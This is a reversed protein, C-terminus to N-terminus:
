LRPGGQKREPKQAAPTQKSDASKKDEGVAKKGEIKPTSGAEEKVQERSAEKLEPKPAEQVLNERRNFNLVKESIAPMLEEVWKPMEKQPVAATVKGNEIQILSKLEGRGGGGDYILLKDILPHNKDANGANLYYNHAVNAPDVHHGGTGVRQAVRELSVEVSKLGIYQMEVKYGANKFDVLPMWQGKDTFHGEYIFPAGKGIAGKYADSFLNNVYVSAEAKIDKISVGAKTQQLAKVKQNFPGDGDFIPISEFGTPIIHRSLTSKGAGNCGAVIFLTKRPQQAAPVDTQNQAQAM